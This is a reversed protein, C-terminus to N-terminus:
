HFKRSAQRQFKVIPRHVKRWKEGSFATGTVANSSANGDLSLFTERYRAGYEETVGDLNMLKGQICRLNSFQSSHGM